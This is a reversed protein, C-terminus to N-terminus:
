RRASRGPTISGGSPPQYSVPSMTSITVWAPWLGLRIGIQNALEAGIVSHDGGRGKGIDHLLAGLVLVFWGFWFLLSYSVYRTMFGHEAGFPAARGLATLLAAASPWFM